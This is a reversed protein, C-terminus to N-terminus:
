IEMLMFGRKRSENSMCSIEYNEINDNRVCTDSRSHSATMASPLRWDRIPSCLIFRCRHHVSPRAITARARAILRPNRSSRRRVRAHRPRRNRSPVRDRRQERVIRVILIRSMVNLTAADRVRASPTCPRACVVCVTCDPRYIERLTIM